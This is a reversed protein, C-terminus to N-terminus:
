LLATPSDGAAAFFKQQARLASDDSSVRAPAAVKNSAPQRHPERSGPRPQVRSRRRASPPSRMSSRYGPERLPKQTPGSIAHCPECISRLSVIILPRGHFRVSGFAQEASFFECDILAAQARVLDLCHDGLELPHTDIQSALDFGLLFTNPDVVRCM